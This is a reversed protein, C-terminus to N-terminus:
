TNESGLHSQASPTKSYGKSYVKSMHTLASFQETSFLFCAFMTQRQTRSASVLEYSSQNKHRKKLATLRRMQTSHVVDFVKLVLM